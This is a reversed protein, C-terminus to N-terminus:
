GSVKDGKAIPPAVKFGNFGKAKIVAFDRTCNDLDVNGNIGNVKGTSTYQHIDCALETDFNERYDAKWITYLKSLEAYDLYNEFWNTNAYVGVFYGNKELESCFAKVIETCNAKGTNAVDQEEIDFYIPYEFQKDKLWKLAQTAELLAEQPNTAYSYIYAGLPISVAKASAYNQEFYPDKYDEKDGYGMRIIAFEVGDAKVAAWDINGQWKSIDIGKTM